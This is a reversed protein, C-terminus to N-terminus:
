PVMGGGNAQEFGGAPQVPTEFGGNTVVPVARGVTVSDILLTNDGSVGIANLQITSSVGSVALPGSVVRRFADTKVINGSYSFSTTGGNLSVSTSSAPAGVEASGRESVFYTVSYTKTPDFGTLTQSITGSAQIFAVQTGSHAAQELFPQSANNVGSSGSNTWGTIAGYGLDGPNDLEFGPNTVVVASLPSATLLISGFLFSRRALTAKVLTSKVLTSKVLTSKVLTSKVLTSKLISSSSHEISIDNNV